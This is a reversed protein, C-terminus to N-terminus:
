SLFLVFINTYDTYRRELLLQICQLTCKRLQQAMPTPLAILDLIGQDTQVTCSRKIIKSIRLGLVMYMSCDESTYLAIFNLAEGM